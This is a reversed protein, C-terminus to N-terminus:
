IMFHELAKIILSRRSSGGEDDYLQFWDKVNDGEYLEILWLPGELSFELEYETDSETNTYIDVSFQKM